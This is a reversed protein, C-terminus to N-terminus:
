RVRTLWGTFLEQENNKSMGPISFHYKKGSTWASVTRMWRKLRIWRSKSLQRASGRSMPFGTRQQEVDVPRFLWGRFAQRTPRSLDDAFLRAPPSSRRPPMIGAIQPPTAPIMPTNSQPPPPAASPPNAPLLRFRYRRFWLPRPRSCQPTCRNGPLPSRHRSAVSDSSIGSASDSGSRAAPPRMVYGFILGAIPIILLLALAIAIWLNRGALVSTGRHLSAPYGQRAVKSRIALWLERGRRWRSMNTSDIPTPSRGVQNYSDSDFESM